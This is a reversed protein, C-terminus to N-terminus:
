ALMEHLNFRVGNVWKYKPMSLKQATSIEDIIKNMRDSTMQGKWKKMKKAHKLHRKAEALNIHDTGSVGNYNSHTIIKPIYYDKWSM